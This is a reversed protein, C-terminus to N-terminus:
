RGELYRLALAKLEDADLDDPAYEEVYNEVLKKPSMSPKVNLRQEVTKDKLVPIPVVSEAGAKLVNKVVDDADVVDPDYEVEVFQGDVVPGQVEEYKMSLFEPLSLPHNRFKKTETDYTLFGKETEGAEGRSHQLPSGIYWCKEAMKQRRHYHGFFRFDYDTPVDSVDLEEEPQYEVPGTKAGNLAGHAVLLTPPAGTGCPEPALAKKFEKADEMYPVFRVVLRERGQVLLATTPTDYVAAVRSFAKVSHVDGALTAQDHNGVVLHLELGNQGFLAVEEYVAQYLGVSLTAKKHFLDGGFLVHKIGEAKCHERVSRMATLANELRSNRGNPLIRSFDKFPHAHLDSFLAVKM